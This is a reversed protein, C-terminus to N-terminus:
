SDNIFGAASGPASIALSTDAPRKADFEFRIDGSDSSNITFERYVNVEVRQGSEQAERNSYDSFVNLVQSGQGVGAEDSINLAQEDNIKAGFGYGYAYTDGTFVNVYVNWGSVEASASPDQSEFDATFDFSAPTSPEESQNGALGLRRPYQRQRNPIPARTRKKKMPSVTM